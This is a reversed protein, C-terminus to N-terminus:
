RGCPHHFERKGAQGSEDGTNLAIESLTDGSVVKYIVPVEQLTTMRAIAEQLDDLEEESLSAEVIEVNEKFDMSILGLTFDEFSKNEASVEIDEDSDLFAWVGAEPLMAEEAAGAVSSAEVVKPKLVNFERATDRELTVVFEQNEEYHNLAAQLLSRVEATNKLNATATGIKVTYASHVSQRPSRDLIDIMRATATEPSEFEGWLISEPETTMQVEMFVLDGASKGIAKRAKLLSQDAEEASELLGAEEGNLFVRLCNNGTEKYFQLCPLFFIGIM